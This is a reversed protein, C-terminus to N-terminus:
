LEIFEANLVDDASAEIALKKCDSNCYYFQTDGRLWITIRSDAGFNLAGYCLACRPIGDSPQGDFLRGHKWVDRVVLVCAALTVLIWGAIKWLVNVESLGKAEGM